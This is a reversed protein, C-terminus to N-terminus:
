SSRRRPPWYRLLVRGHVLPRPVVGFTRSDDSAAPNDGHVWLGDPRVEAVRKVVLLGPRDPRALVALDGPRLRGGRRVLLFDGPRLTPLMSTGAVVM